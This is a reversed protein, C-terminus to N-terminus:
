WSRKGWPNPSHIVKREFAKGGNLFIFSFNQPLRPLVFNPLFVPGFLPLSVIKRASSRLLSGGETSGSRVCKKPHPSNIFSRFVKYERSPIGWLTQKQYEDNGRIYDVLNRGTRGICPSFPSPAKNELLCHM